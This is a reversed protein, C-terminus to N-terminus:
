WGARTLGLCALDVAPLGSSAASITEHVYRAVARQTAAPVPTAQFGVRAGARQDIQELRRVARIQCQGADHFHEGGAVDAGLARDGVSSARGTPTSALRYLTSFGAATM